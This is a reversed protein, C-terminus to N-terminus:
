RLNALGNNSELATSMGGVAPNISIIVVQRFPFSGLAMVIL